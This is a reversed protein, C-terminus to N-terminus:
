SKGHIEGGCRPCTIVIRGKGRPVRCVAGCRHCTFYRHEKDMRQQRAGAMRRTVPWWVKEMFRTNEARRKELNRSFMRFLATFLLVGSVLGTIGSVVPKERLLMNIIDLLLAAWIMTLGLRDVGNRGYMFRSLANGIRQFFNM